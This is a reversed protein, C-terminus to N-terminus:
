GIVVTTVSNAAVPIRNKFCGSYINDLKHEVDTTYIEMHGVTLGTSLKITRDTNENSIVIVTKGEPTRFACSNTEYRYRWGWGETEEHDVIMNYVKSSKSMSTTIVKSGVPAFESFHAMAYYRTTKEYTSLENDAYFLGDSYLKGDDGIGTTNVAVWSSWSNIKSNNIDMAMVRAMYAAAAPDDVSRVCPLECWETMDIRMDDGYLDRKLNNGLEEKMIHIDDSWYSHYALSGINKYLEKDSGLKDFYEYTLEGNGGIEGSEPASLKVDINRDDIGKSFMAMLKYVQEPEYHCGEQGVWGGSWDWQPENIPSIYKVPVGQSIFYETITLFYDVFEQYHEPTINTVGQEYNGSAEGSVTMSYHPSNAFLIVTDVSSNEQNLAEFLFAQANADRTFDYEYEGTAENYYYFSETTRWPTGVRNHEPNVGGGVNYRYINIGLGDTSFLEKALDKRTEEDKVEQSWWCASTGFGYFDSQVTQNIKINVTTEPNSQFIFPCITLAVSVIITIFKKYHYWKKLDM